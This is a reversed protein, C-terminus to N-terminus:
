AYYEPDDIRKQIGAGQAEIESRRKSKTNRSIKAPLSRKDEALMKNNRQDKLQTQKRVRQYDLEIITEKLESNEKIYRACNPCNDEPQSNLISM